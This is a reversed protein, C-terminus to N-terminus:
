GGQIPFLVDLSDNAKLLTQQYDNKSVFDGNVAVAFSQKQQEANLFLELADTITKNTLPTLDYAQGNIFIKM